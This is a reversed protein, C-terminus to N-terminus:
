PFQCLTAFLRLLRKSVSKGATLFDGHAWPFETGFLNRESDRKDNPNRPRPPPAGPAGFGGGAPPQMAEYEKAPIELDFALVKTMGFVNSDPPQKAASEGDDAAAAAMAWLGVVACSFLLPGCALASLWPLFRRSM